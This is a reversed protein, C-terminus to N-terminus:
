EGGEALDGWLEVRVTWGGHLSESTAPHMRVDIDLTRLTEVARLMAIVTEIDDVEQEVRVCTINHEIM